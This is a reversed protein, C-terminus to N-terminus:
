PVGNVAVIVRVPSLPTEKSQSQVKEGLLPEVIEGALAALKLVDCVVVKM